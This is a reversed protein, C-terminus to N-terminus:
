LANIQWQHAYQTVRAGVNAVNVEWACTNQRKQSDGFGSFRYLHRSNRSLAREANRCAHTAAV